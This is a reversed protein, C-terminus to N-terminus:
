HLSYLFNQIIMGLDNQNRSPMPEYEFRDAQEIAKKLSFNKQSTSMVQKKGSLYAALYEQESQGPTPILISKKNMRSIDMITSYGSRAIIYEAKAFEEQLGTAPLHNYFQITNTSPIISAGSPLGRVITATAPYHAIDSIVMNELITRQPEPGSLIILLHRSSNKKNGREFRSLVGLYHLPAAPLSDPHSLEGALNDSSSEDPVWCAAFRNIFKYNWRQVLKETWRGIPSKIRLQHTIFVCPIRTSYLGFRNDSIVADFHHTSIAENLWAHENRISSLISPVKSILKWISRRRSKSYSVRYGQLHLFTITPFEQKLLMEPPGESAVFVEAGQNILERIVPICRTAHGLGWDLPAVLIRLKRMSLQKDILYNEKSPSDM